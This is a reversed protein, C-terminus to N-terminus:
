ADYSVEQVVVWHSGPLSKTLRPVAAEADEQRAYRLEKAKAGLLTNGAEGRIAKAYEDDGPRKAKKRSPLLKWPLLGLALAENPSVGEALTINDATEKGEAQVYAEVVVDARQDDAVDKWEDWIVHVHRSGTSSIEEELILPQLDMGPAQLEQALREVLKPFRASRSPKSLVYRPM